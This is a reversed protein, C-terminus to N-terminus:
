LTQAAVVVPVILRLVSLLTSTLFRVLGDSLSILRLEPVLLPPRDMVFRRSMTRSSRPVVITSTRTEVAVPSTTSEARVTTIRTEICAFERTLARTSALWRARSAIVLIVCCSCEAQTAGFIAGIWGPLVPVESLNRWAGNEWPEATAGIGVIVWILRLPM